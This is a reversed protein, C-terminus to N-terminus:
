IFNGFCNIHGDHFLFFRFNTLELLYFDVGKFMFFSYIFFSIM